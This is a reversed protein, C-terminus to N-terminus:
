YKHRIQYLGPSDSKSQLDKPELVQHQSLRLVSVQWMFLFHKTKPRGM